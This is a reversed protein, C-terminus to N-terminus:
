RVLKPLPEITVEINSPRGMGVWVEREVHLQIDPELGARSFWTNGEETNELRLETVIRYVM